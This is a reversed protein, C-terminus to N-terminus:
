SYQAFSESTQFSPSSSCMTIIDDTHNCQLVSTDCGESLKFANIFDLDNVCQSDWKSLSVEFPPFGSLEPVDAVRLFAIASYDSTGIKEIGIYTSEKWHQDKPLIWVQVHIYLLDHICGSYQWQLFNRSLSCGSLEVVVKISIVGCYKICGSKRWEYTCIGKM